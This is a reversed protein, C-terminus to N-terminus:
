TINNHKQYRNDFVYLIAPTIRDAFLSESLAAFFSKVVIKFNKHIRNEFYIFFHWSNITNINATEIM